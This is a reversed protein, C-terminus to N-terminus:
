ERSDAARRKRRRPRAGGSANEGVFAPDGSALASARRRVHRTSLVAECAECLHWDGYAGISILAGCCRHQEHTHSTRLSRPPM